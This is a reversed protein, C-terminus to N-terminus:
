VKLGTLIQSAILEVDLTGDVSLIKDSYYEVLPETQKHYVKLRNLVTEPKDDDRISLANKCKDCVGDTKPKSYVTHYTTGCSPCFRRGGMRKVITDDGVVVNIVRDIKHGSRDLFEAQKITRPFGDLIFGNRCDPKELRDQLLALVLGDPVLVGQAIYEEFQLGLETEERIAERIIDGTSIAPIALAASIRAAQTGKGAGPAGLVILKM